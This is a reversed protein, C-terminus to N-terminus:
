IPLACTQVGTVTGDRIGDEAQFFFYLLSKQEAQTPGYSVAGLGQWARETEVVLAAMEPPELSFTSDVGGDARSLTFHKELVTAGHAVAAVAVGTGMTHDSLGVQCGFMDRM